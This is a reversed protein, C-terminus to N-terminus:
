LTYNKKQIVSYTTALEDLITFIEGRYKFEQVGEKYANYWHQRSCGIAKIM